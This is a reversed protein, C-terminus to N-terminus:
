VNEKYNIFHFIGNIFSNLTKETAEEDLNFLLKKKSQYMKIYDLINDKVISEIDNIDDIKDSQWVSAKHDKTALYIILLVNETNDKKMWLPIIKIKDASAHLLTNFADGNYNNNDIADLLEEYEKRSDYENLEISPMYVKNCVLKEAKLPKEINTIKIIDSSNVIEINELVVFKSTNFNLKWNKTENSM